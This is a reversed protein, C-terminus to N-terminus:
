KYIEGNCSLCNRGKEKANYLESDVTLIADTFSTKSDLKLHYVGMSVTVYKNFEPCGSEIKLEEISNQLTKFSLLAKEESNGAIVVIFEEGGFRCTIDTKRPFNDKICHAVNKLCEDGQAHGFKDNYKKFYDIDLMAITIPINHTLCYHWIGELSRQMGRRNMLGTLPDIESMREYRKTEIERTMYVSYKVFALVIGAVTIIYCLLYTTYAADTRYLAATQMIIAFAYYGIMVHPEFIPFLTIAFIYMFYHNISGTDKMEFISFSLACFTYLVWYAYCIYEKKRDGIVTDDRLLRDMYHLIAVSCMLFISFVTVFYVQFQFGTGVIITCVIGFLEALLLLIASPIINVFNKKIRGSEAERFIPDLKNEVSASAIKTTDKFRQIIEKLEKYVYQM